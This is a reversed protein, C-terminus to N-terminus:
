NGNTGTMELHITYPIPGSAEYVGHKVEKLVNAPFEVLFNFYWHYGQIIYHCFYTILGCNTPPNVPYAVEQNFNNNCYDDSEEQRKQCVPKHDNVWFNKEPLELLCDIFVSHLSVDAFLSPKVECNDGEKSKGQVNEIM